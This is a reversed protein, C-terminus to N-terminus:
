SRHLQDGVSEDISDPHISILLENEKANREASEPRYHSCFHVKDVQLPELLGIKYLDYLQRVIVSFEVVYIGGSWGHNGLTMRWTGNAPFYSLYAGPDSPSPYKPDFLEFGRGDSQMANVFSVFTALHLNEDFVVTRGCQGDCEHMGPIAPVPRREPVRDSLKKQFLKFM